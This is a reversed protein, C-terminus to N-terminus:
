LKSTYFEFDTIDIEPSDEYSLMYYKKCLDLESIADNIEDTFIAYISVETAKHCFGFTGEEFDCIIDKGEDYATIMIKIKETSIFDWEISFEIDYGKYTGNLM